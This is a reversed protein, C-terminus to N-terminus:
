LSLHIVFYDLCPIGIKYLNNTFERDTQVYGCVSRLMDVLNTFLIFLKYLVFKNKYKPTQMNYWYTKLILYKM